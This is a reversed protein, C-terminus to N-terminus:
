HIRNAGPREPLGLFKDGESQVPNFCAQLIGSSLSCKDMSSSDMTANRKRIIDIQLSM